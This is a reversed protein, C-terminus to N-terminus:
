HDIQSVLLTTKTLQFSSSLFATFSTLNTKTTARLM